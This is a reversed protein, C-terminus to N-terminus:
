ELDLFEGFGMKEKFDSPFYYWEADPFDSYYGTLFAITFSTLKSTGELIEIRMQKHCHHLQEEMQKFAILGLENNYFKERLKNSELLYNLRLENLLVMAGSHRSVKNRKM